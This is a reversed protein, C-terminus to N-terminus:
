EEGRSLLLFSLTILDARIFLTREEWQFPLRGEELFLPVSIKGDFSPIRSIPFTGDLLAPWRELPLISFRLCVKDTRVVAASPARGGEVELDYSLAPAAVQMLHAVTYAIAHHSLSNLM